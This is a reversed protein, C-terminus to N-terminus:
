MLLFLFAWIDIQGGKFLEWNQSSTINPSEKVKRMDSPQNVYSHWIDQKPFLCLDLSVLFFFFHILEKVWEM